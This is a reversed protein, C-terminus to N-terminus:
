LSATASKASTRRSLSEIEEAVNDWDIENGDRRRLADAQRESWLAFDSDYLDSVDNMAAKYRLAACFAGPRREGGGCDRHVPNHVRAVPALYFTLFRSLM